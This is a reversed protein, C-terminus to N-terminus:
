GDEVDEAFGEKEMKYFPAGWGYIRLVEILCNHRVEGRLGLELLSVFTGVAAVSRWYRAFAQLSALMVM